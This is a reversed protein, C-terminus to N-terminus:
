AVGKISLHSTASTVAGKPAHKKVPAIRGADTAKKGPAKSKNQQPNGKGPQSDTEPTESKRLKAASNGISNFLKRAAPPMIAQQFIKDLSAISLYEEPIGYYIAGSVRIPTKAQDLIEAVTGGGGGFPAAISDITYIRGYGKLGELANIIQTFDGEFQIAYNAAQIKQLAETDIGAATLKNLTDENAEKILSGSPTVNITQIQLGHSRAQEAVHALFEEDDLKTPVAAKFMKLQDRWFPLQERLKPLQAEQQTLVDLTQDLNRKKADLNNAMNVLQNRGLFLYLLLIVLVSVFTILVSTMGRM